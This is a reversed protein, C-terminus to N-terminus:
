GGIDLLQVFGFLVIGALIVTIGLLLREGKDRSM